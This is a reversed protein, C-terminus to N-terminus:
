PTLPYPPVKDKKQANRNGPFVDALQSPLRITTSDHLVVRKFLPPFEECRRKIKQAITHALVSELYWVM